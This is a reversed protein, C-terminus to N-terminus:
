EALWRAAAAFGLYLTNRVQEPANRLPSTELMLPVSEDVVEDLAKKFADWDGIGTFPCRHQDASGDNDHVHLAKLGSGMERVGDALRIGLYLAHGTDFCAGINPHDLERILRATQAPRALSQAGFPMNEVCVIVDNEVACPILSEFFDFNIQYFIDSDYEAGTGYPMLNHVVFCKSGLYGAAAIGEKMLAAWEARDSPEYDKPPHRWPGHTQYIEIGYAESAAKIRRLIDKKEAESRIYFCQSPDDIVSLNLDVCQFGHSKMTAFAKDFDSDLNFYCSSGIGIKRM